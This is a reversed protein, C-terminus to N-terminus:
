KGQFDDVWAFLYTRKWKDPKMPDPLFIGHRADGQWLKNPYEAEFRHYIKTDKNRNKFNYGSKKVHHYLTSQSINKAQDNLIEDTQLLQWVMPLSRYSNEDLLKKAKELLETSFVRYKGADCRRKRILGAFGKERLKVVYRRLTRESIGLTRCVDERHTRKESPLLNIDLLPKILTYRDLVEKVTTDSLDFYLAVNKNEQM